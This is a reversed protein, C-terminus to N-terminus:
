RGTGTQERYIQLFDTATTQNSEIECVIKGRNLIAVRNCLHYGHVLDHTIMFITRGATVEQQLLHDLLEAAQQDLGTYPEDLLLIDPEHLTARAIALRQKMGRSFLRVAERQRALLGVRRLREGIQEKTLGLEYIQSFFELNEAATLDAYLLPEHSVYGIHRRVRDAYQPLAWGGVTVQGATPAQLAAVIQMLTSKGAGNAGVLMVFEGALIHLNVGQLVPQLGYQKRLNEIKIM